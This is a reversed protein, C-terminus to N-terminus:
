LAVGRKRRLMNTSKRAEKTWPEVPRNWVYNESKTYFLIYDSVNGYKKRTYNKPNCKKRTICNRYSGPGFVEDMIVKMHFVMKEDLHLYISGDSALLERLLILRWRLSEVFEAGALTDEYAHDLKRSHFTTQTAFPPDIYVLRVKGRVATDKLLRALVCLNDGFYLRNKDEADPGIWLPALQAPPTALVDVEPTKGFYQLQTVSARLAAEEALHPMKGSRRRKPVGTAM